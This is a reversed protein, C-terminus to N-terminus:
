ATTGPESRLWFTAPGDNVLSVQMHAGFVGSQARVFLGAKEVFRDFLARGIEPPAAATFSPRRGSRTDAALTFQPVALLAGGTDILSANMRGSADEFIRLALAKSVLADVQEAEDGREACVLALLGAGIAAREVSAVHVAAQTVRQLLAIM